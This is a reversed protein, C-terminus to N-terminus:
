KFHEILEKISAKHYQDALEEYIKDTDPCFWEKFSPYINIDTNLMSDNNIKFWQNKDTDDRLAAIALFLQKM